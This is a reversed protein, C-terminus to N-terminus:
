ESDLAGEDDHAGDEEDISRRDSAMKYPFSQANVLPDFGHKAKFLDHRVPDPKIDPVEVQRDELEAGAPAHAAHRSEGPQDVTDPNPLATAVTALALILGTIM